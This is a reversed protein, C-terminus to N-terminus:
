LLIGQHEINQQMYNYVSSKICSGESVERIEKIKIGGKGILSGCQSSQIVLKFTVQPPEDGEEGARDTSSGGGNGGGEESGEGTHSTCIM